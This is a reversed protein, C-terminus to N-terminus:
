EFTGLNMDYHIRQAMDLLMQDVSGMDLRPGWEANLLIRAGELLHAVAERLVQDQGMGRNILSNTIKCLQVLDAEDRRPATFATIHRTEWAGPIRNGTV